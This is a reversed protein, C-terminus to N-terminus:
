AAEKEEIKYSLVGEKLFIEVSDAHNKDPLEYMLDNMFDELISKLGRAGTKNEYAKKAVFALAENTFTLKAHDLSILAEYQKTISNEPETLIRLLDGETLEKLEVVIPLRGALEPIIGQKVLDKAGIKRCSPTCEEAAGFGLAKKKVNSMTLGEFAGGCIFLINSTDVQIVEGQPHKRGGQAPVNVVTGEVIKLLAQQVGEGSVDRTISVNESKRAIKDFEDLYLIGREAAEVDYDCSQLLRLIINEVDDGVYGAETVTTADAIAFPVGAIKAITRALETKGVGTPGVLVINSKQIDSRGSEIRKYHNYVGVSLVRKADEQGIVHRDLEAKIKSPTMSLREKKIRDEACEQKCDEDCQADTDKLVARMEDLCEACFFVVTGGVAVPIEKEKRRGCLNCM